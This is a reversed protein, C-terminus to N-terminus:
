FHILNQALGHRVIQIWQEQEIEIRWGALGHCNRTLPKILGEERGSWWLYEGWYSLLPLALAKNLMAYFAPPIPDSTHHILYFPQDPQM